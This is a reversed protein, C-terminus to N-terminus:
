APRQVRLAKACWASLWGFGAVVSARQFAGGWRVLAPQEQSFDAGAALFAVLQTAAAALSGFVWTRDGTRSAARASAVAAAPLCLFVPSSFLDHLRGATTRASVEATGPPYGNVPDCPFLGAGVLGIGVTGVLIPGARATPGPHTRSRWLGLAAAVYLGGTVWFNVRQTWGTPGLSLSSIPHRLPDYGPRVAGEVLFTSIFLPGAAVGCRLLGTRPRSPSSRRRLDM